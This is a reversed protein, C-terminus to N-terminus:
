EQADTIRALLEGEIDPDLFANQIAGRAFFFDETSQNNRAFFLGAGLVFFVYVTLIVWFLETTPITTM